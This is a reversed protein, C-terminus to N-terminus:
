HHNHYIWLMKEQPSKFIPKQIMSKKYYDIGKQIQIQDRPDDGYPSFLFWKGWKKQSTGAKSQAWGAGRKLIQAPFIVSAVRGQAMHKLVPRLAM